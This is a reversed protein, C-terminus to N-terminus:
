RVLEMEHLFPFLGAGSWMGEYLSAYGHYRACAEKAELLQWEPFIGVIADPISTYLFYFKNNQKNSNTTM